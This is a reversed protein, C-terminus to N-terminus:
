VERNYTASVSVGASSGRTPTDERGALGERGGLGEREGLGKRVGLGERVGSGGWEALGKILGLGGDSMLTM